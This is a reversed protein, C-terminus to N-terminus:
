CNGWRFASQVRKINAHVLRDIDAFLPRVEEVCDWVQLLSHVPHQPNRQLLSRQQCSQVALACLIRLWSSNALPVGRAWSIM